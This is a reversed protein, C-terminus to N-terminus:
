SKDKEGYDKYHQQGKLTGQTLNWSAYYFGQCPRRSALKAIYTPLIISVSCANIFTIGNHYGNYHLAIRYVPNDSNM